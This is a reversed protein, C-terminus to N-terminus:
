FKPVIANYEVCMRPQNESRDNAFRAPLSYKECIIILNIYNFHPNNIVSYVKWFTTDNTVCAAM